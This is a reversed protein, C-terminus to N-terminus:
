GLAELEYALDDKSLSAGQFLELPRAYVRAPLEWMKGTFTTSIRADLYILCLGAALLATLLVKFLLHRTRIM